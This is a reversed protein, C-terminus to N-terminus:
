GFMLKFHMATGSDSFIWEHKEEFHEGHSMRTYYKGDGFKFLWLRPDTTILHKPVGVVHHDEELVSKCLNAPM